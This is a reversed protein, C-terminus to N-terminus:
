QMWTGMIGLFMSHASKSTARRPKGSASDESDTRSREREDHSQTAAEKTSAVEAKAKSQQAAKQLAAVADARSSAVLM